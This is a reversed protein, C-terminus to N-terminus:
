LFLDAILVFWELLWWANATVSAYTVDPVAPDPQIPAKGRRKLPLPPNSQVPVQAYLEPEFVELLPGRFGDPQKM